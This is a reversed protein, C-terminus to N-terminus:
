IQCAHRTRREIATPLTPELLESANTREVIYAPLAQRWEPCDLDDHETNNTM